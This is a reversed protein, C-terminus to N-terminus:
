SWISYLRKQMREQQTRFQSRMKVWVRHVNIYVKSYANNVRHEVRCWLTFCPALEPEPQPYFVTTTKPRRTRPSPRYTIRPTPPVTQSTTTTTQTSTTTSPETPQDKITPPETSQEKILEKEICHSNVNIRDFKALIEECELKTNGSLDLLELDPLQKLVDAEVPLPGSIDNFALTM